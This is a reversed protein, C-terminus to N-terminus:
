ESGGQAKSAAFKISLLMKDFAYRGAQEVINKEQPCAKYATVLIKRDIDMFLTKFDVGTGADVCKKVHEEFMDLCEKVIRDYKAQSEPKM